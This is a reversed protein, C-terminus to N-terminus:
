PVKVLALWPCMALRLTSWKARMFKSYSMWPSMVSQHHPLFKPSVSIPRRAEVQSMSVKLDNFWPLTLYAVTPAYPSNTPRNLSLM